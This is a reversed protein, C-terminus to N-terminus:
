EDAQHESQKVIPVDLSGVVKACRHEVDKKTDPRIVGEPVGGQRDGVENEIAKQRRHNEQV